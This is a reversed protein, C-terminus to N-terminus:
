TRWRSRRMSHGGSTPVTVSTEVANDAAADAFADCQFRSEVQGDENTFSRTAPYMNIQWQELPPLPLQGLGEGYFNRYVLRYLTASVQRRALPNWFGSPRALLDTAVRDRTSTPLEDLLVGVRSQLTVRVLAGPTSRVKDGCAALAACAALAVWALRTM